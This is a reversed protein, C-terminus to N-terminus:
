QKKAGKNEIALLQNLKHEVQTVEKTAAARIDVIKRRLMEAISEIVAEPPLFELEVEVKGLHAGKTTQNTSFCMHQLMDPTGLHERKIYEVFFDPIYAYLTVKM